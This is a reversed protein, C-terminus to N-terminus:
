RGRRVRRIPALTRGAVAAAPWLSMASVAGVPEELWRRIGRGDMPFAARLMSRHAAIRARNTRGPAVIVWVSVAEPRWGRKRVVDPALRRKRDVTGVLENVDVIDTKLEIVLLAQRTPHWALIDIVGRESYIAFSVEPAVVWAPLEAAFMTAVLDHLRSHGANLLRDLDGARWRPQLELRIDLASTVARISDLTLSGPHGREIRSITSASVGSREALDLQRWSRKLRVSRVAAGFRIDEVHPLRAIAAESATVHRKTRPRAGRGLGPLPCSKRGPVSIASTWGPDPLIPAIPSM